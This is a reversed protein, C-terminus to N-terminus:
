ATGGGARRRRGTALYVDARPTLLPDASPDIGDTRPIPDFIIHQQETPNNAVKATLHITGFETQPRGEPWHITSDDVVDGEAALQVEVRFTVPGKALRQELEDFLYNPSHAASTRSSTPM